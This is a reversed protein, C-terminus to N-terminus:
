EAPFNTERIIRRYDEYQSRVFNRFEAGCIGTPYLGQLVLRSKLDASRVATSLMAALRAQTEDPTKGPAFVGFWLEMHVSPFGAEAITPVDPLLETRTASGTALVRLRGAAAQERVDAYNGLYSSVHEGLLANVAPATGAYPVFTMDVKAARKLAEFGIHTASGPGISALTLRGPQLRASDLLEGLTRYSSAASVALATPARVLQCIPVLDTLPDFNLKRLNANVVLPNANILLTEGDPAARSVAESGIDGAAGPRTEILFAQGQKRGIEDAVLRALLDSVGGPPNPVVIKITKPTQSWASNSTAAAIALALIAMTRRRVWTKITVM